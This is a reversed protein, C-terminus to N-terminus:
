LQMQWFAIADMQICYINYVIYKAKQKANRRLGEQDLVRLKSHCSITIKWNRKLVKFNNENLIKARLETFNIFWLSLFMNNRQVARANCLVNRV